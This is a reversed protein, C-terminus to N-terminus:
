SLGTESGSFNWLGDPRWSPVNIRVTCDFLWFIRARFLRIWLSKAAHIAGRQYIILMVYVRRHAGCELRRWGYMGFDTFQQISLQTQKYQVYKHILESVEPSVPEVQASFNRRAQVFMFVPARM